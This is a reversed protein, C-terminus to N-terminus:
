QLRNGDAEQKVSDVEDKEMAVLEGGDVDGMGTLPGNANGKFGVAWKPRGDVDFEAWEFFGCSKKGPTSDAHCMWVYRGRSVARKQVCRLITPLHCRCRPTLRPHLDARYHRYTVNLRKTGAIPHPTITPTAAVSHKYSEQMSAHMILLSNHPLHIAIQGQEDGHTPENKNDGPTSSEPPLIKRIRFERAVGLSLSGIIPRPGLYTLQDTHWGVHEKGGSYCNVFSANPTWPDPSQFKLKQGHPQYDRTRRRIEENVKAQVKTSLKLMWPTSQRVNAEYGDGGGWLYETKQENVEELSDVYFRYTHPSQVTREFMQFNSRHFSTSEQLLEKLLADAEDNTLFNHIMTCPTNAEIDEPSYLHLTKGKKTLAKTNIRRVGQVASDKKTYAHLSAQYGLAAGRKRKLDTGSSSGSIAKSVKAIDGDYALLYDLLVDQSLDSHLSALIALKFETSETNDDIDLAPPVVSQSQETAVKSRKSSQQCDRFQDSEDM